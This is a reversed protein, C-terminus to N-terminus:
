SDILPQLNIPLFMLVKEYWICNTHEISISAYDKWAVITKLQLLRMMAPM